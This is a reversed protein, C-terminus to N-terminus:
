YHPPPPEDEPRNAPLDLTLSKVQQSFVKMMRTLKLIELEQTSVISNLKDLTDEQFAVRTELEDIREQETM